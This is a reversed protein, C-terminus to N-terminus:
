ECERPPHSLLEKQVFVGKEFKWKGFEYDVASGRSFSEIIKEKKNLTPNPIDHFSPVFLFKQKVENWVYADWYEVGQNGFQGLYVLLDKNGDFTVDAMLCSDKRGGNPDFTDDKPYSFPIIQVTKEGRMIFVEFDFDKSKPSQTRIVANLTDESAIDQKTFVKGSIVSDTDISMSDKTPNGQGVKSKKCGFILMLSLIVLTSDIIRKM